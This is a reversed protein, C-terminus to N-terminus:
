QWKDDRINKCIAVNTATECKVPLGNCTSTAFSETYGPQSSCSSRGTSAACPPRAQAVALRRAKLPPQAPMSPTEMRRHTGQWPPPEPWFPRQRSCSTCSCIEGKHLRLGAREQGHSPSPVRTARGPPRSPFAAPMGPMLSPHGFQGPIIRAIATGRPSPVCASPTFRLRHGAEQLLM